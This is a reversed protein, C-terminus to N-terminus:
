QLSFIVPYEASNNATNTEGQVPKVSVQVSTKEGFPVEPFDKFTVTKSEGIDLLDITQTKVIPTTGKPITLTVVVSVEQNEGTNKVSVDFALDTSAKITTETDPALQTGAPQVVVKELGTGHIGSPSGGTSAGHIRQWIATMSRTTYLEVNEVFVSPPAAVDGLGENQLTADAPLQFLFQWVVDSAELRRAQASLKEGAATAEQSDDDKTAKFTDLLGQMGGVRLELAEVAHDTSPRLPGPVDLGQAREVDQQQQQILGGLKTELEAQKLGPTTLLDALDSGIKASNSGIAGLDTMAGSYSNRKKDSSCGQGWVVLLVVILIAFAVLGILRLIPTLGQPAHFRPGRPGGGRGDSPRAPAGTRADGDTGHMERTADDEFFDFDLIDDDHSSV